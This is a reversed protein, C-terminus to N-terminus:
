YIFKRGNQIYIYGHQLDNREIKMGLINYIDGNGLRPQQTINEVSSIWGQPAIKFIMEWCYGSYNKDDPQLHGLYFWGDLFGGWGWNVHFVIDEEVLMNMPYDQSINYISSMYGDIVFAHGGGGPAGAFYIPHGARFEEAMTRMWDDFPQDSGLYTIFECDPYNFNKALAKQAKDSNGSTEDFNYTVGAAAGAAAMLRAVANGQAQTYEGSYDDLMNDWDFPMKSLDVNVQQGTAAPTFTFTGTGCAPFRYYRMIQAMATAVCGTLCHQGGSGPCQWNFPATQDYHINALLPGVKEDEDAVVYRPFIEESDTELLQKYSQEYTTLFSRIHEPMDERFPTSDSFGLVQPMRDDASVIVFRSDTSVVYFADQWKQVQAQPHLIDHSPMCRKTAHQPLYLSAINMVEERTREVANLTLAVSFLLLLLTKTKM